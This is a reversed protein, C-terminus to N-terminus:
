LSLFIQRTMGQVQMCEIHLFHSVLLGRDMWLIEGYEINIRILAGARIYM